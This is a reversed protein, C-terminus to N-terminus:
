LFLILAINIFCFVNLLNVTSFNVSFLIVSSPPLCEVLVFICSLVDPNFQAQCYSLSVEVTATAPRPSCPPVTSLGGPSRSAPQSTFPLEKLIAGESSDSPQCLDQSSPCASSATVSVPSPQPSCAPQSATLQLPGPLQCLNQSRPLSSAASAEPLQAPQRSLSSAESKSFIGPTRTRTRDM